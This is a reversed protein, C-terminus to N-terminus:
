NFIDRRTNQRKPRKKTTRVVRRGRRSQRTRPPASQNIVDSILRKGRAKLTQKLSRKAALDSMGGIGARALKLAMKRAQNKIFPTAVKAIAPIVTRNLVSFISGLGGGQQRM